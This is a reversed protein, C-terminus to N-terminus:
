IVFFFTSIVPLASVVGSLLAMEEDIDPETASSDLDTDTDTSPTDSSDSEVDDLFAYENEEALSSAHPGEVGIQSSSMDVHSPPEKYELSDSSEAPMHVTRSRKARYDVGSQGVVSMFTFLVSTVNCQVLNIKDLIQALFLVNVGRQVIINM